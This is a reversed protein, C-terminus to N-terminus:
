GPIFISTGAVSKSADEGIPLVKAPLPALVGGVAPWPVLGRGDPTGHGNSTLAVLGSAAGTAGAFVTRGLGTVAVGAGAVGGAVANVGAM